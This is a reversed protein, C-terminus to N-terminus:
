FHIICMFMAIMKDSKMHVLKLYFRKLYEM